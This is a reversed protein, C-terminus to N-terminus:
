GANIAELEKRANFLLAKAARIGSGKAARAIWKHAKYLRYIRRDLKRGSLEFGAIVEREIEEVCVEKGYEAELHVIFFAPDREPEALSFDEFDLLGLKHGDFLWQDIHMDGHTPAMHSFSLSHHAETIEKLIHETDDSLEPFRKTLRAIFERTDKTQEARDFYRPPEIDLNAIQAIKKGIRKALHFKDEGRLFNIAPEGDMKQQWLSLTESDWTVAKAVRFDVAKNESLEWLRKGINHIKKGRNDRLFKKPYIKVFHDEAGSEVLFLCRKEPLYKVLRASRFRQRFAKVTALKKDKLLTRMM